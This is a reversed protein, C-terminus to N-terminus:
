PTSKQANAQPRLRPTRPSLGSLAKSQVLFGVRAPHWNRGDKSVGGGTVLCHVHPHCSNSSGPTFSPSCASPAVSMAPTAPLEVIADAAAKMLLAYGDRQNSRLLQRLEAPVTITVHFYPVPLTEAQRKALWDETHYIHCKPCSRSKCSRYSFVQHSCQNCRWLHGGLAQNRYALIDAIARRHSPPMAAGHASRYDDAFRGFVDAAEIV